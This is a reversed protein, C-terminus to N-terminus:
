RPIFIIPTSSDSTLGAAKLQGPSFQAMQLDIPLLGENSRIFNDPKADVIVVGDEPRYWGFYSSPVPRFGEEVLYAHIAENTAVGDKQYWRQSIVISPQGSPQGIIMSPKDSITVGELRLDSSFVEIHLAMRRLYESPTANRRGLGGNAPVPIQGYVGPWTRKVARDDHYRYFVEHESTSNSVLPLSDLTSAPTLTGKDRAWNELNGVEIGFSAPDGSGQGAGGAIEEAACQFARQQDRHDQSIATKSEHDPSHGPDSRTDIPDSPV